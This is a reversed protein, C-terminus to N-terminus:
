AVCKILMIGSGGSGGANTDYGGGGGGGTNASGNGGSGSGSGAGGGGSGGSGGGYGNRGGGGGGGAYLTGSSSGWARTTTGQGSGGTWSTGDGKCQRNGGAGGNSGGAAGSSNLSSSSGSSYFGQAGGGSGGSGGSQGGGTTMNHRGGGGGSVSFLNSFTTTGGTAGAHTASDNGTGDALGGRGGAGITIAYSTGPTVGINGSTKTYGGGGGGRAVYSGGAGGGGGGVGFIQITRWGAPVSWNRTSTITVSSGVYNAATASGTRYTTSWYSVGNINFYSFISYYYKTNATLGTNTYGNVSSSSNVVIGTNGTGSYVSTGTSRNAPASGTNRRLNVGSWNTSPRGWYATLANSSYNAVGLSDPVNIKVIQGTYRVGTKAVNVTTVNGEANSNANNSTTLTYSGKKKIELTVLGTSSNAVGSYTARSGTATITASPNAQITLYAKFSGRRRSFYGDM